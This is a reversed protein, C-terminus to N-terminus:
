QSVEQIIADVKNLLVQLKDQSSPTLASFTRASQKDLSKELSFNLAMVEQEQQQTLPTSQSMLQILKDEKSELEQNYKFLQRTIRQFFKSKPALMTKKQYVIHVDHAKAEAEEMDEALIFVPYGEKESHIRNVIDVGTFDLGSQKDHLAYDTVLAEAGSSIIDEILTDIDPHPTIPAIDFQTQKAGQQTLSAIDAQSSALYAITYTRM